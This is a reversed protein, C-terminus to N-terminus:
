FEFHPPKFGEPLQAKNTCDVVPGVKTNGTNSAEDEPSVVRPQETTRCDQTQKIVYRGGKDVHVTESKKVCTTEGVASSKCDGPSEDAYAQAAGVYMVALGGLLGSVAAIKQRSLM